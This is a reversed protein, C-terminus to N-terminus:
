SFSSPPIPPRSTPIRTCTPTSRSTVSVVPLGAAAAELPVLPCNEQYSPFLPLDAANCVLPMQDLPFLGPFRVNTGAAAIRPNLRRIGETM